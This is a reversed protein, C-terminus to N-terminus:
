KGGQLILLLPAAVMGTPWMQMHTSQGDHVRWTLTNATEIELTNAGPKLYGAVNLRYPSGLLIGAAKGNICISAADTLGPFEIVAGSAMSLINEPVMFESCYRIEGSFRPWGDPGNISKLMSSDVGRRVSHFDEDIGSEKLSITWPGGLVFATRKKINEAAAPLIHAGGGTGAGFFNEEDLSLAKADLIYVASEGAELALELVGGKLPEFAAANSVADYRLLRCSHYKETMSSLDAAAKIGESPHENFFMFVCGDTHEYACARLDERHGKAFCLWVPLRGSIGAVTEALAEERVLTSMNMLAEPSVHGSLSNEPYQNVFLVPFGAKHAREIFDAVLAVAHTCGPIVICSYSQGEIQMRGNEFVAKDESLLDSWVVDCDIQRESLLRVARQFLETEGCWESEGHYLVAASVAMRGGNFLHCLRNMYKMLEAFYRYQPNNGRAYFHPPCDRDPFKPSFAHPVFTNIGRVLMHDTLWKMLWTGEAWGFSGFIECLARGSKDPDLHALSSGLKALGFHFFEGDRDSAIWQHDCYKFGPIIQLHVVDIGAMAMGQGARFYHGISCGLRAHANDDEIVHGIHAVGHAQCWDGLQGSFCEGVLQSLCDMYDNRLKATCAGAHYWLAALKLAFKDGWRMKLRKELESSWPLRVNKIGLTQRFDYGCVNGLEPEDSFFGAFTKGFDEKYRAYHPEYVYDILVRVSERDILNMYDKRGGGNQTTFVVFLRWYGEPVDLYAVGECVRGTVDLIHEFSIDPRNPDPKKCAYVGLLRGDNGLFNEILVACDKQPGCLDMHREAVYIKAKQPQEEFGGAAHGTPFKDDDLLWVRMGRKRAEDMIMDMDSWWQKGMFDPHPRSEVCFERIQCNEMKDIEERLVDHSEGHLWFFPLIYSGGRGSLVENLRKM